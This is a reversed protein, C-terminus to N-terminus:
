LRINVTKNFYGFPMKVREGYVRKLIDTFEGNEAMRYKYTGSSCQIEAEFERPGDNQHQGKLHVKIESITSNYIEVNGVTEALITQPPMTLYKNTYGFTGRLQDAWQGFFGKGEAKAQDRAQQAAQNLMDATLQAFIMRQTTVVGAYSDYRGLSKMKRFLIVGVTAEGTQQQMLQPQAPIPSPQTSAVPQMRPQVAPQSAMVPMPASTVYSPNPPSYYNLRPSKPAPASQPTSVPEAKLPIEVTPQTPALNQTRAAGCRGCFKATQNIQAGCNECYPLIFRWDTSHKKTLLNLSTEGIISLLQTFYVTTSSM